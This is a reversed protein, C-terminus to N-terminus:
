NLTVSWRGNTYSISIIGLNGKIALDKNEM